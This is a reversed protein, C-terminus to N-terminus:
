RREWFSDISLYPKIYEQQNNLIKKVLDHLEISKKIALEIAQELLRRSISRSGTKQLGVVRGKEDVAVILTSDLILEEDLSPDVILYDEYVGITTSLVNLNIPLQKSKNERNVIVREGEIVVDPIKTLNLALISSLMGADIINGDHDLLYLDNFVIWVVKGPIIVLEDLKIAESERLSRDIVRAAEIANEDPPGPEFTPSALPVFEAHVQLVGEDPADPYPTGIELKVGTMVVTNGISVIASGESKTIPNLVINIKRYEDLRRGDIREGKKLLKQITEKRAQPIIPQKFPTISM